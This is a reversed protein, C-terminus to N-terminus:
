EHKLADEARKRDSIDTSIGCVAYVAGAADFLPFKTSLYSHLGDDQPVSEDFELPRCAHLVQLDNARFADAAEKPFFDYDTRGVMQARTVHFLREYQRNVLIYKGDRDKVYIVATTNDLISQLRQESDRLGEEARRREIFQGIQSGIAAMMLLLSDDPRRIERSFFEIVGLVQGSLVIPFGFAGHLGVRAAYPARPFNADKTVDEIWAPQGSSWVRGPLGVGSVFTRTRTVEEFEAFDVGGPHWTEVCRLLGADSDVRWIAGMEWGLSDCIAQLIRPTAEDLTAAEALVRTAAHQAALRRETRKRESIDRLVSVGGHVAGGDDRLPRATVSIWVGHAEGGHRVFEEAEDVEEGRVARMIPLRDRPIPTVADPLYLGDGRVVDAPRTDDPGIALIRRATPNVALLKGQEDAVVVGDGMSALISELIATQKLLTQESRTLEGARERLQAVARELRDSQALVTQEHVELLQELNAVRARLQQVEDNTSKDTM